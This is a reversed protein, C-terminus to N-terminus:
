LRLFNTLVLGQSSVDCYWGGNLRVIPDKLNANNIDYIEEASLNLGLGQAEAMTIRNLMSVLWMGEDARLPFPSLMMGALLLTATFKKMCLKSTEVRWNLPVADFAAYLTTLQVAYRNTVSKGNWETIHRPLDTVRPNDYLSDLTTYHGKAAARCGDM